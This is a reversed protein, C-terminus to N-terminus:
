EKRSKVEKVGAHFLRKACHSCPDRPGYIYAAADFPLFVRKLGQHAAEGCFIQLIQKVVYEFSKVANDESHDCVMCHEAFRVPGIDVCHPDGAPAGNFGTALVRHTKRDVIVCGIQAFRCTSRLSAQKAQGFHYEDWDPRSM